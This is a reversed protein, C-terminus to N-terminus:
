WEDLEALTGGLMGYQAAQICQVGYVAGVRALMWGYSQMQPSFNTATRDGVTCCATSVELQPKLVFIAHQM